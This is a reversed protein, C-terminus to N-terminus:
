LALQTGHIAPNTRHAGGSPILETGSCRGSETARLAWVGTILQAIKIPGLDAIEWQFRKEPAAHLRHGFGVASPTKRTLSPVKPIRTILNIWAGM